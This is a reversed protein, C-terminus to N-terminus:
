QGIAACSAGLWRGTHTATAHEILGNFNLTMSSQGTYEMGDALDLSGQGQACTFEIHTAIGKPEASQITCGGEEAFRFVGSAAEQETVCNQFRQNVWDVKLGQAAIVAEIQQRQEPPLLAMQTRALELALEIRGSESKLQMQHEWLGPRVSIQQAFGLSPFLAAIFLSRSLRM